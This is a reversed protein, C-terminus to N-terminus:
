RSSKRDSFPSSRNQGLIINGASKSGNTPDFDTFFTGDEEGLTGDPGRSLLLYAGFDEEITKLDAASFALHRKSLMTATKLNIYIYPAGAGRGRKGRSFPDTPPFESTYAFPTTIWSGIFNYFPEEVGDLMSVRDNFPPDGWTSRPYMKHDVAYSEVAIRLTRLDSIARSLPNSHGTSLTSVFISFLVLAIAVAVIITVVIQATTAGRRNSMLLAAGVRVWL